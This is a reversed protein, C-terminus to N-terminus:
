KSMNAEAKQIEAGATTEEEKTTPADVPRDMERDQETKERDEREGGESVEKKTAEASEELDLPCFFLIIKM